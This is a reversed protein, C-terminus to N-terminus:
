VAPVAEKARSAEAGLVLEPHAAVLQLELDRRLLGGVKGRYVYDLTCGLADCVRAMHAVSALRKGGEWKTWTSQDVGALKALDTQTWGVAERFWAVRAGVAAVYSAPEDATRFKTKPMAPVTVAATPIRERGNQGTTQTVTIGFQGQRATHCIPMTRRMSVGDEIMRASPPGDFTAAARPMELGEVTTFHDARSLM